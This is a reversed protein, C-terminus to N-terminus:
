ASVQKLTLTSRVNGQRLLSIAIGLIWLTPLPYSLWAVPFLATNVFVFSGILCLVTLIVGLWGMWRPAFRTQLILISVAILFAARALGNMGGLASTVGLSDLAWVTAADGGNEAITVGVTEVAVNILWPIIMVIGAALAATSLAAQEGEARRLLSYLGGIFMLFFPVPLAWLYNNLKILQGYDTYLVIRESLPADFSPLHPGLNVIFFVISSMVLVAYVAGCWLSLREGSSINKISKSASM